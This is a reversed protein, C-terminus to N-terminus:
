WHYGLIIGAHTGGAKGEVDFLTVDAQSYRLDLGLNFHQGLTWYVGGNLWIGTGNDDQSVTNFGTAKIEANIFAIGGGVYPRISSGAVEWIKRVGVDFESTTGELNVGSETAEDTSGLFDLAISVPWNQQKFDVLVGFEAQKDVPAWDNEELTKQGLFFNVNGTWENANANIFFLMLIVTLISKKVIIEKSKNLNSVRACCCVLIETGSYLLLKSATNICILKQYFWGPM